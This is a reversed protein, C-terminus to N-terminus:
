IKGRIGATRYEITIHSEVRFGTPSCAREDSPDDEPSIMAIRDDDWYIEIQTGFMKKM